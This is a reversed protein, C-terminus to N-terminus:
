LFTALIRIIIRYESSVGSVVTEGIGLEGFLAVGNVSGACGIWVAISLVLGRM